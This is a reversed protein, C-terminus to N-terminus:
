SSKLFNFFSFLTYGLLFILPHSSLHDFSFIFTIFGLYFPGLFHALGFAVVIENETFLTDLATQQVKHQLQHIAL